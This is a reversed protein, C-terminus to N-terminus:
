EGAKKPSKLFQTLRGFHCGKAIIEPKTHAEVDYSPRHKRERFIGDIREADTKTSSEYRACVIIRDDREIVEARDLEPFKM